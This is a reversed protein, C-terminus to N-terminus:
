KKHAAGRGVGNRNGYTQGNQGGNEDAQKGRGWGGFNGGSSGGFNGGNGSGGGSGGENGNSGILDNILENGKVVNVKKRASVDKPGKEATGGEVEGQSKSTFELWRRKDESLKNYLTRNRSQSAAEIEIDLKQVVVDEVIPQPQETQERRSNMM